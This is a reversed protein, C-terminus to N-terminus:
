NHHLYKKISAGRALCHGSIAGDDVDGADFCMLYAADLDGLEKELLQRNTPSRPDDPNRSEFGHRRIKSIVHIVEAAEEALIALREDEAPTLGHFPRTQKLRENESVIRQVEELTEPTGVVMLEGGIGLRGLGQARLERASMDQVKGM